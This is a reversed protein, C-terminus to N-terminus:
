PKKKKSKPKKKIPMSTVPLISLASKSAKALVYVALFPSVDNKVLLATNQNPHDQCRTSRGIIEV